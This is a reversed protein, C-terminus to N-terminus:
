SALNLALECAAAYGLGRGAVTILPADALV